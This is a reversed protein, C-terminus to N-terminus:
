NTPVGAGAPEFYGEPQHFHTVHLFGKRGDPLSVDVVSRGPQLAGLSRADDDTLAAVGNWFVIRESYPVEVLHIVADMTQGDKWLQCATKLDRTEM